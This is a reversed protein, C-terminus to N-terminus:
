GLLLLRMPAPDGTSRLSRRLRFITAIVSAINRMSIAKSAGAAREGISLGIEVYSLNAALAKILVEAQFGFGFTTVPRTRLFSVPYITLGNYYSM